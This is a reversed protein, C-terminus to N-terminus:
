PGWHPNQEHAESQTLNSKRGAKLDLVFIDWGADVNTYYVLADGWPSWSGGRDDAYADRSMNNLNGGDRDCVLLEMNGDRYSEWLLQQGDPSWIPAQDTAPHNTFNRQDSGDPNMFYIELDGDRDSVFAIIEGDPSWAPSYDAFRNNTLRQQGSGDVGIVYIEWNGDRFSSFLLYEGDPSWAPTWDDAADRTLNTQESGDANMLYIERNGDRDSVFAIRRGDPSLVPSTDNASGDTLRVRETGDARMIYVSWNEDPASRAQYVVRGSLTGRDPPPLVPTPGRGPSPQAGESVAAGALGWTESRQRSQWMYAIAFVLVAAMMWLGVAMWDIRRGAFPSRRPPRARRYRRTERVTASASTTGKIWHGFLQQAIRYTEGGLKDLIGRRTLAAFAQEVDQVPVRIQLKGLYGVVDQASAVGRFGWQEALAALAVQQEASLGSWVAEFHPSAQELVQPLVDEADSKGVWGVGIRRSYIARGFLQVFWPLGGSLRHIRGIVDIDYALVGRVPVMLIDATEQESLPGLVIQPLDELAPNDSEQPLGEVVLLVALAGGEPLGDRLLLVDRGWAGGPALDAAKVADFCVLTNERSSRALAGVYEVLQSADGGSGVPGVDPEPAGLADALGALLLGLPPRGQVSGGADLAVRRVRVRDELLEPLRNVFSTKGALPPGYLLFARWGAELGDVLQAFCRERGFFLDGAELPRDTVYPNKV